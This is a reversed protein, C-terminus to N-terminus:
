EMVEDARALLVAPVTLGLAKATKINIKLTVETAQEVPLEAPRAGKLVLDVNPRRSKRQPDSLLVWQSCINEAKSRLASTACHLRCTRKTGSSVWACCAFPLSELDM